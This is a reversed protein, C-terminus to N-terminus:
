SGSSALYSLKTKGKGYDNWIYECIWCSVIDSRCRPLWLM